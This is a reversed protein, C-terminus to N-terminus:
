VCVCVCVCLHAHLQMKSHAHAHAHTCTRARTHTHMRACMMFWRGNLGTRACLRACVPERVSLLVPASVRARLCVRPRAHVCACACLRALRLCRGLLDTAVWNIDNAATGWAARARVCERESESM